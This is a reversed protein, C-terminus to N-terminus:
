DCADVRYLVADGERDVEVFGPAHALGLYGEYGVRSPFRLEDAADKFYTGFDLVWGVDLAQVAACVEPDEAARALRSNVITRAELPVTNFHPNLVPQGVLAYAFSTGTWPNGAVLGELGTTEPLREILAREDISLIPSRDTLAYTARANAVASWMAPAQLVAFVALAAVAAVIAVAPRGAPRARARRHSIWRWIALGGVLAAPISLIMFFSALRPIDKYFVGLLVNRLDSGPLVIAAFYLLAGIFWMGAVWRRRSDITSVVVGVMVLIAFGIAPPGDEFAFALVDFAGRLPSAEPGWPATYGIAGLQRWAFALVVLAALSGAVVTVRQWTKSAARFSAIVSM